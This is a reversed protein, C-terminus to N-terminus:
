MITCVIRVKDRFKPLIHCQLAEILLQVCPPSAIITSNHGVDNLLQEKSLLPFRILSMVEFIYQMREDKKHDLWKLAAELVEYETESNLRNSKLLDKVEDLSISLFEESGHVDTFYHTSYVDAASRLQSCGHAEAFRKIGLCNDADLQRMLFQSCAERVEDFQLASAASMLSQVNSETMHIRSTYAYDVLSELASLEIGNIAIEKKRSEAMEGTFMAYFYASSSALIVRHAPVRQGEVVLTVDCLKESNRLSNLKGLSHSFQSESRYCVGEERVKDMHFDLAGFRLTNVFLLHVNLLGLVAIYCGQLSACARAIAGLGAETLRQM